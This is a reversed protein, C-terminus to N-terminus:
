TRSNIKRGFAQALAFMGSILQIIFQARAAVIHVSGMALAAADIRRLVTPRDVRRTRLLLFLSVGLPAPLAFTEPLHKRSPM